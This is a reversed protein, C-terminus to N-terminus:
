DKHTKLYEKLKEIDVLDKNRDMSDKYKEYLYLKQKLLEKVTYTCVGDIITIEIDDTKLHISFDDIEISPLKDLDYVKPIGISKFTQYNENNVDCDIDNTKERLGYLLLGSGAGIVLDEPKLNHKKIFENYMKIMENRNM